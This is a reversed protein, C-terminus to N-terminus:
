LHPSLAEVQASLGKRVANPSEEITKEIAANRGRDLEGINAALAERKATEDAVSASM